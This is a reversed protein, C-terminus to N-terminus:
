VYYPQYVSVARAGGACQQFVESMCASLAAGQKSFCVPMRGLMCDDMTSAYASGDFYLYPASHLAAPWPWSARAVDLNVQM